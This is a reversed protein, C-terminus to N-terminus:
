GDIGTRWTPCAVYKRIHHSKGVATSQPSPSSIPHLPRSHDERAGVASVGNVIWNTGGKNRTRKSLYRPDILIEVVIMAGVGNSAAVKMIIDRMTSRSPAEYERSVGLHHIYKAITQQDIPKYNVRLCWEREARRADETGINWM